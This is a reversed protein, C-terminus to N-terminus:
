CYYLVIIMIIHKCCAFGLSTISVRKRDASPSNTHLSSISSIDLTQGLGGPSVEQNGHHGAESQNSSAPQSTKKSQEQLTPIKPTSTPGRHLRAPKPPAVRKPPSDKVSEVSKDQREPVHEQHSINKSPSFHEQMISMQELHKQLQIQQEKMIALEEESKQSQRQKQVEIEQEEIFKKHKLSEERQLELLQEQQKQIQELYEETQKIKMQHEAHQVKQKEEEAKRQEQEQKEQEQKQVLLQEQIQQQQKISEKQLQEQKEKIKSQQQHMEQKLQQM